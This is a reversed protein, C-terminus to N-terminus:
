CIKKIREQIFFSADKAPIFLKTTRNNLVMFASILIIIIAQLSIISFIGILTTTWGPTSLTTFFKLILVIIALFIITTILMALFYLLRTFILDILVSMAGLGHLVLGTFNLKSKGCYREGRSTAIKKLPINLRVITAACVWVNPSNVLNRVKCYPIYCFNGFDIVKGSLIRFIFKYIIYFIKFKLGESRSSRKAVVIKSDENNILKWINEVKDEGDCDM